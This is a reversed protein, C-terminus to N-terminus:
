QKTLKNIRPIRLLNRFLPKTQFFGRRKDPVRAVSSRIQSFNFTIPVLHYVLKLWLNCDHVSQSIPTIHVSVQELEDM